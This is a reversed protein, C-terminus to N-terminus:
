LLTAPGLNNFFCSDRNILQCRIVQNVWCLDESDDLFELIAGRAYFTKTCATKKALNGLRLAIDKPLGLALM